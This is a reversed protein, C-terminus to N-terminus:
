CLSGTKQVTDMTM